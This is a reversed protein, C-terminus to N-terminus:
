LNQFSANNYLGLRKYLIDTFRTPVSVKKQRSESENPLENICTFSRWINSANESNGTVNEFLSDTTDSVLIFSNNFHVTNLSLTYVM